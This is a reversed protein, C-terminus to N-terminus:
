TIGKFLTPNLSSHLFLNFITISTYFGTQFLRIGNPESSLYLAM